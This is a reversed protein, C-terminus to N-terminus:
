NHISPLVENFRSSILTMTDVWSNTSHCLPHSSIREIKEVGYIEIMRRLWKKELNFLGLQELLREKSPLQWFKMKTAMNEVKIVRCDGKPRLAFWFRFYYKLCFPLVVSPQKNEIEKRNNNRVAYCLGLQYCKLFTIATGM